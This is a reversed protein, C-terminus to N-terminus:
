LYRDNHTPSDLLANWFDQSASSHQPSSPWGGLANREPSSHHALHAVVSSASGSKPQDISSPPTNSGIASHSPLPMFHSSSSAVPINEPAKKPELPHSPLSSDSEHSSTSVGRQRKSEQRMAHVDRTTGILADEGPDQAHVWGIHKEFSKYKTGEQMYVHTRGSYFRGTSTYGAPNSPEFHVLAHTKPETPSSGFAYKAHAHTADPLYKSAHNVIALHMARRQGLPVRDHFQITLGHPFDTPIHRQKDFSAPLMRGGDYRPDRHLRLQVPDARPAEVGATATQTHAEPLDEAQVQKARAAAQEALTSKRKAWPEYPEEEKVMVGVPKQDDGLVLHPRTPHPRFVAGPPMMIHHGRHYYGLSTRGGGEIRHQKSGEVEFMTAKAHYIPEHFSPGFTRWVKVNDAQPVFTEAHLKAAHALIEHQHKPINSSFKVGIKKVPGIWARAKHADLAPRLKDEPIAENIVNTARERNLDNASFKRRRSPVMQLSARNSPKRSKAGQAHSSATSATADPLKGTPSAFNVSSEPSSLLFNVSGESSAPSAAGTATGHLAEAAKAAGEALGTPAARTTSFIAVVAFLSTASKWGLMIGALYQRFSAM